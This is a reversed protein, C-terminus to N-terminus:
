GGLCGRLGSLGRRIWSKMTGLPVDVREALESHSYGEFYALVVSRRHDSQLQDLCEKLAISDEEHCLWDDAPRLSEDAIEPLVDEAIESSRSQRRLDNLATNRAITCLWTMAMGKAPDFTAAKRWVKVYVEQLLDEARERSRVIRLITGFLKASTMEYVTSLAPRKGAGLEDLATALKRQAENM